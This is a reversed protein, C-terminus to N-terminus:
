DTLHTGNMNIRDIGEFLQKKHTGLEVGFSALEKQTKM